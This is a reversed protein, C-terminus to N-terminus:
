RGPRGKFPAVRRMKVKSLLLKKKQVIPRKNDLQAGGGGGGLSLM